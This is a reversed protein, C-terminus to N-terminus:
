NTPRSTGYPEIESLTSVLLRALRERKERVVEDGDERECDVDMWM